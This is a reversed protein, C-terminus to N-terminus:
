TKDGLPSNVNQGQFADGQMILEASIGIQAAESSAVPVQGFSDACCSCDVRFQQKTGFSFEEQKGWERSHVIELKDRDAPKAPEVRHCHSRHM